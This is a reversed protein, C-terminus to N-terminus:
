SRALMTMRATGHHVPVIMPREARAISFLGTQTRKGFVRVSFCTLEPITMGYTRFDRSPLPAVDPSRTSMKMAMVLVTEELMIATELMM